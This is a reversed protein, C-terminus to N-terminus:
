PEASQVRIVDSIMENGIHGYTPDIFSNAISKKRFAVDARSIEDAFVGTNYSFAIWDESLHIFVAESIWGRSQGEPFMHDISLVLAVLQPICVMIISRITFRHSNQHIVQEM